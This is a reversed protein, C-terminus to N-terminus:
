RRKDANIMTAQKLINELKKGSVDWRYNRLVFRKGKQAQARARKPKLLSEVVAIAFDEASDAATAFAKGEPPLWNLARSTAVVPVGLSLSLAVKNQMGAAVRLPAVSLAAHVVYPEIEPVWGTVRIDRGNDWKRLVKRPQGGVAMFVAQPVAQKVLPWIERLFWLAGDENPLYGMNGSFCVVPSDKLYGDPKLFKKRSRAPVGNPIVTLKEARVGLAVLEGADAQSIVIAQAARQAWEEEERKLFIHDWKAPLRSFFVEKQTKIRRTFATLCDTLELVVPKSVPGSFAWPAMRLRHALVVDVQQGETTKWYDRLSARLTPSFYSSVNLSQGMM